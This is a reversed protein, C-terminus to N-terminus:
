FYNSYLLGQCKVKLYIKKTNLKLHSVIALELDQCYIVDRGAIVQEEAAQRPLRISRTCQPGCTDCYWVFETCNINPLYFFITIRYKKFTSERM